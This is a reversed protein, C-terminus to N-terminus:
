ASRKREVVGVELNLVEGGRLIRLVATKGVAEALLPRLSETRQLRKGDWELLVDGILLGAKGAPSDTDVSITMLGGQGKLGLKQILHEPLAIPQLGAGLYGQPVRGHTLVAQVVRDVTANPVAFVSVRSLAPTAIGILKGETDLVAGGAAVPHLSTDLRLVQDLKGGRMSQTPGGTSSLVGLGAQASEKNRGVTLVLSGPLLADAPARRPAVPLNAANPIRLIALDTGSDRGILEATDQEEGRTVVINEDKRLAHEATVIIGPAWHVGSSHFRVRAHVAFVFAASKEVAAALESSFSNLVSM